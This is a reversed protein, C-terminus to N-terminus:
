VLDRVDAIRGTQSWNSSVIPVSSMSAASAARWYGADGHLYYAVRDIMELFAQHGEQQCQDVAAQGKNPDRSTLLVQYGQRALQKCTELGLGRNAGTVVAVLLSTNM